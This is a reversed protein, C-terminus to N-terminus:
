GEDGTEMGALRRESRTLASPRSISTRVVAEAWLAAHLRADADHRGARIERALALRADSGDCPQTASALVAEEATALLRQQVIERAAMRIATAIMRAVNRPEGDLHSVIRHELTQQALDLLETGAIEDTM